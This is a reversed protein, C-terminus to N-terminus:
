PAVERAVPLCELSHLKYGHKPEILAKATQEAAKICAAKDTQDEAVTVYEGNPAILTIWLIFTIM